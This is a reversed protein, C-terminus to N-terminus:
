LLWVQLDKETTAAHDLVKSAEELSIYRGEWPKTAEIKPELSGCGNFVILSLGVVVMKFM